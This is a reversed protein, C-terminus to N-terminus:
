KESSKKRSETFRQIRKKFFDQLDATQKTLDKADQELKKIQAEAVLQDEKLEENDQWIITNMGGQAAIKTHAQVAKNCLWKDWRLQEACNGGDEDEGELWSSSGGDGDECGASPAPVSQRSPSPFSAARPRHHKKNGRSVTQVRQGLNTRNEGPM